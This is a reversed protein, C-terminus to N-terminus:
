KLYPLASKNSSKNDMALFLAFVCFLDTAVKAWIIFNMVLLMILLVRHRHFKEICTRTCQIFFCIFTLLGIFGFYYIFRLYGVDIGMYYAYKHIGLYNSNTAHPSLFYGDGIIWTKISNPIHKWMELLINTSGTEFSGSESLNYFGEFAFRFLKNFEPLTNLFVVFPICIVMTIILAYGIKKYVGYIRFIYIKSDYIWYLLALLLGVLTTRAVMSGVIAIFIFILWFVYVERGKKWIYNVMLYAIMILACAFRTGATDFAAGIGYMRDVDELYEQSQQIIISNVLYQFSPVFENLLAFVNQAVCIAIFYLCVLEVSIQTHVWRILSCITYAAGLWVWMSVVYSVYAMDTAANYALSLISCFSVMMAWLTIVFMSRDVSFERRRVLDVGFLFLGVVAIFIKTNGVPLFTFQFPFIYMSFIIGTMIITLFRIM